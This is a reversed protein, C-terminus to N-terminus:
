DGQVKRWHPGTTDPDAHMLRSVRQRSVGFEKAIEEISMGEDRLTRAAIRRLRTGAAAIAQLDMTAIELLLPRQASSIIESYSLGDARLQLAREAQAEAMPLRSASQRLAEILARFAEVVEAEPDDVDDRQEDNGAPAAVFTRRRRRGKHKVRSPELSASRSSGAQGPVESQVKLQLESEGLDMRNRVM